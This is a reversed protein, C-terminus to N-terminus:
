VLYRPRFRACPFLRSLIDLSTVRFSKQTLLHQTDTHKQRCHVDIRNVLCPAFDAPRQCLSLSLCWSLSAWSLGCITVLTLKHRGHLTVTDM